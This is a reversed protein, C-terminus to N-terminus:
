KDLAVVNSKSEISEEIAEEHPPVILVPQKAQHLVRRVTDGMLADNLTKGKGRVGMVIFDCNKEKAILLIITSPMGMEVIIENADACKKGYEAKINEIYEDRTKQIYERRAELWKKESSSRGMNIDFVSLDPGEQIVNLLTLKAGYAKAISVAYAYAEQACKSQDTAYLIHQITTM